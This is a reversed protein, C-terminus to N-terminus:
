WEDVTATVPQFMLWQEPFRKVYREIVAAYREVMGRISAEHTNERRPWIAPEFYLRFKWTGERILFTPLVPLQSRISLAAPGKPLLLMRHFMSLPLGENGSMERDGLVGLLHELHTQLPAVALEGGRKKGRSAGAPPFHKQCQGIPPIEFKAGVEIEQRACHFSPFGRHHGLHQQLITVVGALRGHVAGAANRRLATRHPQQGRPTAGAPRFIRVHQETSNRVKIRGRTRPPIGATAELFSM